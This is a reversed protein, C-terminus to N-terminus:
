DLLENLNITGQPVFSRTLGRNATNQLLNNIYEARQAETMAEFIQKQRQPNQEM